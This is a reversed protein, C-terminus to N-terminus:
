LINEIKKNREWSVINRDVAERFSHDLIFNDRLSFRNWFSSGFMEINTLLMNYLIIESELIYIQINEGLVDFSMYIRDESVDLKGNNINFIM